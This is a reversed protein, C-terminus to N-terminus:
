KPSGSAPARPRDSSPIRYLWIGLVAGIMALAIQLALPRVFVVISVPLMLGMLVIMALKTRYPLSGHERWERIMPGVVRMNLLWNDFRPSARAYCAAALLMFPPAPLVPLVLALVGVLLSVTGAVILLVRVIWVDHIRVQYSGDRREMGSVATGIEM